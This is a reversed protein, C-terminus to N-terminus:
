VFRVTETMYRQDMGVTGEAGNYLKWGEGIFLVSPNLKRCRDYAELVTETDLLGMLDFRLGDAKYNKVWHVASDVILKRAM